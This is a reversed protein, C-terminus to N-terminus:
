EAPEFVTGNWRYLQGIEEGGGDPFLTFRLLSEEGPEVEWWGIVTDPPLTLASIGQFGEGTPELVAVGEHTAGGRTCTIAVVLLRDGSRDLDLLHPAFTHLDPRLTYTAGEVRAQAAPDFRVTADPCGLEGAVAGLRVPPGAQADDAPLIPPYEPAWEYDALGTGDWPHRLVAGLAWGFDDLYWPHAEVYLYGDAIWFDAHYAGRPGAWGIGTLDGNPARSVVLLQDTGDGSDEQDAFCSTRLVAEPGGSGTLDGYAVKDPDISIRPYSGTPAIAFIGDPDPAFSVTGDPCTERPPIDITAQYWDVDAIPDDPPTPMPGPTPRPSPTVPAESPTPSEVPPVPPGATPRLVTAGGVAIAVVAVGALVGATTRRVRLQREAAARVAASAPVPVQGQVARRLGHLASTLDNDRHETV